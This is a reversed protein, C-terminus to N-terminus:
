FSQGSALGLAAVAAELATVRGDLDDYTECTYLKGKALRFGTLQVTGAYKRCVGFGITKSWNPAQYTVNNNTYTYFRDGTPNFVFTFSKRVWETSDVEINQYDFGNAVKTHQGNAASCGMWLRAKTNAATMRAWCSMTYTQGVEMAEIEGYRSYKPQGNEMEISRNGYNWILKDANAWGSEPPNTVTFQLAKTYQTGDEETVIDQGTLTVVSESIEDGTENGPYGGPSGISDLYPKGTAWSRSIEGYPVATSATIGLHVTVTLASHAESGNRPGVTITATGSGAACTMIGARAIAYDRSTVGILTFSSTIAADTITYTLDEAAEAATEAPITINESVVTGTPYQATTYQPQEILNPGSLVRLGGQELAAQMAEFMAQEETWQQQREYMQEELDALNVALVAAIGDRTKDSRILGQAM